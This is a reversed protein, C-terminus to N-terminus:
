SLREKEIKNEFLEVYYHPVLRHEKKENWIGIYGRKDRKSTIVYTGTFTRDNRNDWYVTKGINHVHYSWWKKIKERRKM